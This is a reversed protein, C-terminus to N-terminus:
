AWISPLPTILLAANKEAVFSNEPSTSPCTFYKGGKQTMFGCVFHVAEVVEEEVKKRLKEIGGYRLHEYVENVLWAGCLPAFM